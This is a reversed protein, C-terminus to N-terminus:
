PLGDPSGTVHEYLLPVIKKIELCHYSKLIALFNTLILNKVKPSSIEKKATIGM